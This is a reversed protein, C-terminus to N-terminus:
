GKMRAQIESDTSLLYPPKAAIMDQIQVKEFYTNAQFTYRLIQKGMCQIEEFDQPSHIIYFNKGSQHKRFQPFSM